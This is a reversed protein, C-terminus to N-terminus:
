DMLERLVALNMRDEELDDGKDTELSMGVDRFREDNVINRFAEKGLEGKGIHDHRDKNSGLPTKSDNLHFFRLRDIGVTADFRDMTEAYAEPTRM